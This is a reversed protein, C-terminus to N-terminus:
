PNVHIEGHLKIKSNANHMIHNMFHVICNVDQSLTTVKKQAISYMYLTCFMKLMEAYFCSIMFILFFQGHIM